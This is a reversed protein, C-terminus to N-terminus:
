LDVVYLGRTNDQFLVLILLQNGNKNGQRCFADNVTRGDLIDGQKLIAQLVGGESTFLGTRSGLWYGEFVIVGGEYALPNGIGDFTAMEGPVITSSDVVVRLDDPSTGAYLFQQNASDRGVLAVEAGDWDAGAFNNFDGSGGPVPTNGDAVLQPGLGDNRTTYIGALAGFTNPIIESFLLGGGRLSFDQDYGVFTGGGPKPTMTDLIVRIRGTQKTTMVLEAHNHYNDVPNVGGTVAMIGRELDVGEFCQKDTSLTTAVARILSGQFRRLFLGENGSYSCGGGPGPWGGTFAAFAGDIAVDFFDSFTDATGPVTTHTDAMVGLLGSQYSYIGPALASDYGIFAVKGGGIARADAFITFTGTGDPVATQTDAIRTFTQGIATWASVLLAVVGLFQSIRTPYRQAKKNTVKLETM